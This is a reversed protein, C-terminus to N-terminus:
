AVVKCLQKKDYATLVLRSGSLRQDLESDGSDVFLHGHSLAAMKSENALIVLAEDGWKDLVSKVVRASVQQNGRGLLCGQGGIVSLVIKCPRNEIERELVQWIQPESADAKILEEGIFVDVGLLSGENGLKEGLKRKLASTTNGAGVILLPQPDNSDLNWDEILFDAIEDFVLDEQEASSDSIQISGQKSGQLLALSEQLFPVYLEAFYRSNVRGKRLAAEDIDRVEELQVAVNSSGVFRKLLEASSEPSRGYVGSQIKVGCPIGLCVQNPFKELGSAIDRATGDGGAFLVIDVGAEAALLAANQTDTGSSQILGTSPDVPWSQEWEPALVECEYGAEDLIKAGMFNPFSVFDVSEAFPKLCALFRQVRAPSKIESASLNLKERIGDSGKFALEGGIGAWPNVILAVKTKPKNL